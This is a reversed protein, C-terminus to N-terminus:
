SESIVHDAGDIAFHWPAGHWHNTRVFYLVGPGAVDLTVNFDEGVQYLFHSADAAENGGARDYTSRMYARVGIRHRAWQDWMRYTDLGVPIVPPEDAGWGWACVMLMVGVARRVIRGEGNTMRCEKTMRIEDNTM